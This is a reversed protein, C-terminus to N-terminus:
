SPRRPTSPLSSCTRLRPFHTGILAHLAYLLEQIADVDDRDVTELREIRAVIAEHDHGM